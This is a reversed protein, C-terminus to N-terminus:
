DQRLESAGGSTFNGGRSAAPDPPNPQAQAQTPYQEPNLRQHLEEAHEIEHHIMIRVILSVDGRLGWPFTFQELFREAPFDRVAQKLAERVQEWEARIHAEPLETRTSVSEANYFDLGRLVTLPPERGAAHHKLAEIVADDWGTLHSLYERVTWGPYLEQKVMLDKILHHTKARSADLGAILKQKTADIALTDM